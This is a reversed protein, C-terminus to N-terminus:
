RVADGVGLRGPRVVDAYVGFCAARGMTGVQTRHQRALVALLERDLDRPGTVPLAPVLCRPTPLTVRLVVQGIRLEQGPLPDAPLDLVLNPRFRAPEVAPRGLQRALEALAGRTLLHVAGFDTFGGGPKARSFDGAVEAGPPSASTWEPVMAPEEPLQRHLRAGAPVVSALRVERGLHGSLVRDAEDSGARVARGGVEVETADPYAGSLRATVELLRGWRGPHKASGVTGDGADLCAWARDGRLGSSAVDVSELSEGRASKLPYRAVALVGAM